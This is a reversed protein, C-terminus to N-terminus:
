DEIRFRVRLRFQHQPCTTKFTQSQVYRLAAQDLQASLSSQMVQLQTAQGEAAELRFYVTVPGEELLQRSLPPYFADVGQGAISEPRCGDPPAPDLSPLAPLTECSVTRLKLTQDAELFAGAVTKTRGPPVLVLRDDSEGETNPVLAKCLLDFKAENTVELRQERCQLDSRGLCEVTQPARLYRATWGDGAEGILKRPTSEVEVPLTPDLDTGLAPAMDVAAGKVASSGVGATALGSWVLLSGCLCTM